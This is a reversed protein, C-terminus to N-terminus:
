IIMHVSYSLELAYKLFESIWFIYILVKYALSIIINNNQNIGNADIM